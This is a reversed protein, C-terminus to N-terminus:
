IYCLLGRRIQVADIFHITFKFTVCLLPVELSDELDYRHDLTLLHLRHTYVSASRVYPLSIKRHINEEITKLNVSCGPYYWVMDTGSYVKEHDSAWDSEM